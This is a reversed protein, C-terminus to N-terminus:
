NFIPSRFITTIGWIVDDVTKWKIGYESFNHIVPIGMAECEQVSNANGDRLTLRLMCICSAYIDPMNKHDVNLTNSFIYNYQPLQEMVKDYICKGYIHERGVTQGNFILINNTQTQLRPPRKFFLKTDVLNFDVLISTTHPFAQNVQNYICKSISLHVCNKLSYIERATQKSHKLSLNADEGGWIIYRIEKDCQQVAHLDEDTYIGFFITPKTSLCWGYKTIIRESFTNLGRSIHVRMKPPLIFEIPIPDPCKQLPCKIVVHTRRNEAVGFKIYHNLAECEDSIHNLDPYMYLYFRWDFTLPSNLNNLEKNETNSILKINEYMPSLYFPTLESTSGLPQQGFNGVKNISIPKTLIFPVKFIPTTHNAIFLKSYFTHDGYQKDGWLPKICSVPFCVMSTDITGQKIYPLKNLPKLISATICMDPRGFSWVIIKTTQQSSSVIYLNITSLVFQHSMVNDDDLFMIYGNNDTVSNILDNCYLNFKYPKNIFAYKSNTAFIHINPHNVYKSLYKMSEPTDYCVFINYNIYNQHLISQICLEFETPRSSTRILINIKTQNSEKLNSHFFHTRLHTCESDIKSQTEQTRQELMLQSGVRNEKIGNNFYHNSASQHTINKLDPYFSIYFEPDFTFTHQRPQPQQHHCLLQSSM